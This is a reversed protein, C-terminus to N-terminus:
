ILLMEVKTPDRKEENKFYEQILRVDEFEIPLNHKEIFKELEKDTKLDIFGDL